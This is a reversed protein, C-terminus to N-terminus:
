GTVKDRPVVATFVLEVRDGYECDRVELKWKCSEPVSSELAEGLSGVEESAMAGRLYAQAINKTSKMFYTQVSFNAVVSFLTLLPWVDLNTLSQSYAIWAGLGSITGAAVTSAVLRKMFRTTERIEEDRVFDPKRIEYEKQFLQVSGEPLNRVHQDLNGSLGKLDKAVEQVLKEINDLDQESALVSIGHKRAREERAETTALVSAVTVDPEHQPLETKVGDVAKQGTAAQNTTRKARPALSAAIKEGIEKGGLYSTVAIHTGGSALQSIKIRCRTEELGSAGTERIDFTEAPSIARWWKSFISGNWIRSVIGGTLPRSGLSVVRCDGIVDKRDLTRAVRAAAEEFSESIPGRGLPVEKHAL